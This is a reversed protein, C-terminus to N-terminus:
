TVVAQRYQVKWKVFFEHVPPDSHEKIRYGLIKELVKDKPLSGTYLSSSATIDEEKEKEEAEELGDEMDESSEFGDSFPILQAKVLRLVYEDRVQTYNKRKGATRSSRRTTEGGEEEIV